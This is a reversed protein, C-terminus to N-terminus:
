RQSWLTSLQLNKPLLVIFVVTQIVTNTNRSTLRKCSHCVKAQSKSESYGVVQCLPQPLPFVFDEVIKLLHFSNSNIWLINPLRQIAISCLDIQILPIRFSSMIEWHHFPAHQNWHKLEHGTYGLHKDNVIPCSSQLSFVRFVIESSYQLNAKKREM